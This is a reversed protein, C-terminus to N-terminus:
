QYLIKQMQTHGDEFHLVVFYVGKAHGAVNLEIDQSYTADTVVIEKGQANQIQVKVIASEGVYHVAFRGTQTPNPYLQATIQAKTLTQKVVEIPSYTHTGDVDMMRLRYYSTGELPAFDVFNYNLKQDSFYAAKVQGIDEFHKRDSSREIVFYDSNRESYTQWTVNVTKDSQLKAKFNNLSVPLVSSGAHLFLYSFGPVLFDAYYVNSTTTIGAPIVGSAIQTHFSAGSVSSINPTGVGDVSVNADPIRTLNIDAVTVSQGMASALSNLETQTFYVRVKAPGNVTPSVKFYRQLIKYTYFSQVTPAIYVTASTNGLADVDGAGSYDNLGMIPLYSIDSGITAMADNNEFYCSGTLSNTALPAAPRVFLTQTADAGTSGNVLTECNYSKVSTITYTTTTSPNVMYTKPGEGDPLDVIYFTGDSGSVSIMYPGSGLADFNLPAFAGVCISQDPGASVTPALYTTRNFFWQGNASNSVNDSNGGTVFSVGAATVDQVRIYDFCLNPGSTKTIRAKSGNATSELTIFSGALGTAILKGNPSSIAQTSTAQLDYTKGPFLELYNYTNNGYIANNGRLLVSDATYYGLSATTTTPSSFEIINFIKYGGRFSGGTASNFIIKGKSSSQSFTLSTTTTSGFDLSSSLTVLSQGLAISRTFGSTSAFSSLTMTKNNSNFSGKNVRFTTGSGSLNNALTWTGGDGDLAMVCSIAKNGPDIVQSNNATFTMQGSYGNITFAGSSPLLLSGSIILNQNGIINNSSSPNVIFNACAATADITVNKSAGSWSLSDFVVNDFASPICLSDGQLKSRSDAWFGRDSWNGVYTAISGKKKRWYYTKPASTSFVWNDNGGSNISNVAVYSGTTQGKLGSLITYAVDTAGATVDIQNGNVASINIPSADCTSKATFIGGVRLWRPTTSATTMMGSPLLYNKGSAMILNGLVRVSDVFVSLGTGGQLSAHGNLTLNGLVRFGGARNEVALTTNAGQQVLPPTVVTMRDSTYMTITGSTATLNMVNTGTQIYNPVAYQSYPGTSSLNITTNNMKWRVNSATTFLNQAYITIGSTKLSDAGALGFQNYVRFNDNLRYNSKPMFTITRSFTAGNTTISSNLGYFFVDRTTSSSYASITNANQLVCNGFIHLNNDIQMKAAANAGSWTLSNCQYSDGSTPTNLLATFAVGLPSSSNADFIVNDAMSPICDAGISAGGSTYSWHARSEWDGNGGVWYMTRPTVTTVNMNAGTPWNNGGLDVYNTINYINTANTRAFKIDRLAIKDITVNSTGTTITRQTNASTSSVYAYGCSAIVQITDIFINGAIMYNRNGYIILKNIRYAIISSIEAGASNPAIALKKVVTGASTSFRANVNATGATNVFNVFNFSAVGVNTFGGTVSMMRIESTGAELQTVVTFNSFWPQSNTEASSTAAPAFNATGYLVVLSSGLKLKRSTESNNSYFMYATVKQGNTNLIGKSLRIRGLTNSSISTRLSDQFVWEASAGGNFNIENKLIQGTFKINYTGASAAAFTLIGNVDWIINPRLSMGGYVNLTYTAVGTLKPTKTLSLTDDWYMDRCVSNQDLTIVTNTAAAINADLFYVNDVTRPSQLPITDTGSIQYDTGLVGGSFRRWSFRDNWNGSKTTTNTGVWKLTLQAYSYNLCFLSVFLILLRKM